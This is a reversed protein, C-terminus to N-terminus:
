TVQCTNRTNTSKSEKMDQAHQMDMDCTNTKNTHETHPQMHFLLMFDCCPSHKQLSQLPNVTFLHIGDFCPAEFMKIDLIELCLDVV